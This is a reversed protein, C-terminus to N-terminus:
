KLAAPGAEGGERPVFDKSQQSFVLSQLEHTEGFQTTSNRSFSAGARFFRHTDGASSDVLARM